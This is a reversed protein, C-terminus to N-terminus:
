ARRNVGASNGGYAPPLALPKDKARYEYQLLFRLVKKSLM